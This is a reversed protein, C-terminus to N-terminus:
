KKPTLQKVEPTYILHSPHFFPGMMHVRTFDLAQVLQPSVTKKWFSNIQVGHTNSIVQLPMMFPITTYLCTHSGYKQSVSM